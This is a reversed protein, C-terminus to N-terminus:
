FKELLNKVPAFSRRHLPSPGFKALMALHEPTPYGKHRCFGYQPFQRDLEVMLRDRTVKAIISAAAVAAVQADGRVVGKQPLPLAPIPCGDVVVYEPKLRLGELARRMALFSAQRINLTDIEAVSATGVAWALASTFIQEALSTRKSVSLAKSDNLGPLDVAAPLIVAAAVVPGALPGRGAEDVGAVLEIGRRMLKEEYAYLFDGEGLAGPM